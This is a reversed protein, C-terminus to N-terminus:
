GPTTIQRGILLLYALTIAFSIQFFWGAVKGYIPDIGFYKTLNSTLTPVFDLMDGIVGFITLGSSIASNSSSTTVSSGGTSASAGSATGSISTEIPQSDSYFSTDIGTGYASNYESVIGYFSFAIVFALLLGGFVRIFNM